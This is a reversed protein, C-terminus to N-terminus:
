YKISRLYTIVHSFFVGIAAQSDFLTVIVLGNYIELQACRQIVDVKAQIGGASLELYKVTGSGTWHM